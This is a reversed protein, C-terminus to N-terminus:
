SNDDDSCESSAKDDSDFGGDFNIREREMVGHSTGGAQLVDRLDGLIFPEVLKWFWTANSGLFGIWFFKGKRKVQCDLSKLKLTKMIRDVGEQSGRVKLLIDGKSTRYGGYMYWYALVRPSLWRHVLKPIVPQGNPWFQEAYFSFYTHSISRFYCPVDNRGDVLEDRNVLWEHYQDHIYRRLVSHIESDESFEFCIAFKKKEDDTVIQLGGLLMGVLIERQEKTLKLKSPTKVIKRSLSLVYDLKEMSPPEIDLKKQCMLDYIKEAKVFEGCSLYGKLITNCSRSNVGIVENNHMQLFIEEARDLIGMKVLSDLYINFVTRNPRCKELCQLFASELRDHLGLNSYMYMLDIFAPRLPKLGSDIFEGMISEALEVNQAKSLVEIIKHYAVVTRSGLLEELSWFVELSKKHEGIRGYLEMAYAFAQSPPMGYSFLKNWSKEAEEVDGAKSCARLVSVLLERDEEIGKSQMETRLSAIREKDIMDQYSHLWILGGYIDKHIELGSTTLNHFIFETQKLHHKCSAGPKSLLARFLSNHLSLLPTYGGLQIMRNYINCAEELCGQASSSLYAIILVHFTSESPVRGQNIIDDFIDRCKLYKREKGMYDALKTALAFDFRFWHQQMMWKYVRFGTENERIRMCHVAVYTADEQNMWKRQANLVRIMTPPKHGPLEKCLWALKSRRWQEPLEELAKVEVAPSSIKKLDTSEFSGDFDFKQEENRSFELKGEDKGTEESSYELHEVVTNAPSVAYSLSSLSSRCTKFHLFPNPSTHLFSLTCTFHRRRGTHRFLHFHLSTSLSRLLSLTTATRM